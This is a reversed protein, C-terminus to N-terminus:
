QPEGKPTGPMGESPSVREPPMVTPPPPPEKEAEDKISEEAEKVLAGPVGFDALFAQVVPTVMIAAARRGVVKSSLIQNVTNAASLVAMRYFSRMYSAQPASKESKDGNARAVLRHARRDFEQIAGAWAAMQSLQGRMEEVIAEASRQEKSQEAMGRGIGAAARAERKKECHRKWREATLEAPPAVYSPAGAGAPFGFAKAPGIDIPAGAQGELEPIGLLAFSQTRDSEWIETVENFLHRDIDLQSAFPSECAMNKKSAGRAVFLDALPVDPGFPNPGRDMETWDSSHTAKLPASYLVWESDTWVRLCRLSPNWDDGPKREDPPDEEVIIWVYNGRSDIKWNRLRPPAVKEWYPREGRAIQEARSVAPKDVRPLDCLLHNRGFVFAHAVAENIFLDITTGCGDVNAWFRNWEEGAGDRQPPTRLISSVVDNILPAFLPDHYAAACRREFDNASETCHPWIYSRWSSTPTWEWRSRQRDLEPNTSALGEAPREIQFQYSSIPHDPELVFKGARWFDWAMEWRRCMSSYAPHVLGLDM